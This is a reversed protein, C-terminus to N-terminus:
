RRWMGSSGVDVAASLWRGAVWWTAGAAVAVPVAWVPPLTGAILPALPTLLLWRALWSAGAAETRRRHAHTAARERERLRRLLPTAPSGPTDCAAVTHWLREARPDGTEAALAGLVTAAEADGPLAAIVAAMTRALAPPGHLCVAVAAIAPREGRLVRGEVEAVLWPWTDVDVAGRRRDVLVLAVVAVLAAAGIV